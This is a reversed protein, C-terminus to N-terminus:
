SNYRCRYYGGRVGGELTKNPFRKDVESSNVRYIQPIEDNFIIFNRSFFPSLKVLLSEKKLHYSTKKKSLLFTIWRSHFPSPRSEDRTPLNALPPKTLLFHFDSHHKGVHPSHIKGKENSVPSYDRLVKRNMGKKLILFTSM